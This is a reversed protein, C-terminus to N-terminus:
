VKGQLSMVADSQSAEDEKSHERGALAVNMGMLKGRKYTSYTGASLDCVLSLVSRSVRM